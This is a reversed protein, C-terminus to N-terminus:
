AGEHGGGRTSPLDKGGRFGRLRALLGALFGPGVRRLAVEPLLLVAVCGVLWPWLEVALRSRRRAQLFV